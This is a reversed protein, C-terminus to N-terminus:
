GDTAGDDRQWLNPDILGNDEFVTFANLLDAFDQDKKTLPGIFGGAKIIEHFEKSVGQM